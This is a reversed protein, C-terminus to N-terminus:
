RSVLMPTILVTPIPNDGGPGAPTVARALAAPDEGRQLIGTLQVIMALMKKYDDRVTMSQAGGGINKVAAATAGRGTVMVKGALGRAQLVAIVAEAMDDNAVYIVEIDNGNDDLMQAVSGAAQKPSWGPTFLEYVLKLDGTSLRPRLQSMVGENLASAAQDNPAGHIMAMRAGHPANDALWKGQLEGARLDDARVLFYKNRAPIVRSCVIVQVNNQAALDIIAAAGQADAPELVLLCAGRAILVGAQTHQAEADGTSVAASILTKGLAAPLDRELARTMAAPALLGVNQCKGAPSGPPAPTATNHPLSAAASASAEIASPGVRANGCAALLLLTFVLPAIRAIKFDPYRSGTTSHM